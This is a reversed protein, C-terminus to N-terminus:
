GVIKRALAVITGAGMIIFLATISQILKEKGEQAGKFYLIGSYTVFAAVCTIGISKLSVTASKAMSEISRGAFSTMPHVFIMMLLWAYLLKM